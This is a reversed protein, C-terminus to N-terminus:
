TLGSIVEVLCGAISLALSGHVFSTVVLARSPRPEQIELGLLRRARLETHGAFAALPAAPATMVFLAGALASRGAFREAVEDAQLEGRMLRRASWWSVIPLFALVDTAADTAARRLPEFRRAHDAEHHLVASLEPETLTALAGSSIFVTPRLVGTCFASASDAAVCEIRRIGAAASIRMLKPPVPIRQLRGLARSTRVVTIALKLVSAAVLVLTFVLAPEFAAPWWSSGAGLALGCPGAERCGAVASLCAVPVTALLGLLAVRRVSM